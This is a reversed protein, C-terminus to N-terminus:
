NLFEYIAYIREDIRAFFRQCLDTSLAMDHLLSM